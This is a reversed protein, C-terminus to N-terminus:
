ELIILYGIVAIDLVICGAILDGCVDGERLDIAWICLLAEYKGEGGEEGAGIV